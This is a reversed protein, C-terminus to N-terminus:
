LKKDFFINKKKNLHHSSEFSDVKLAPVKPSITQPNINLSGTIDKFLSSNYIGSTNASIGTMNYRIKEM